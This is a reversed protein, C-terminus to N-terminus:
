QLSYIEREFNYEFLGEGIDRCISYFVKFASFIANEFAKFQCFISNIQFKSECFKLISM